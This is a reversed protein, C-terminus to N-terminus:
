GRSLQGSNRVFYDPGSTEPGRLDTRLEAGQAWVSDPAIPSQNQRAPTVDQTGLFVHWGSANAPPAGANVILSGGACDIMVPASREGVAGTLHQWAIQVMYVGSALSGDPSLTVLPEKAQAVAVAAIGIGNQLLRLLGRESVRAFEKWRGLYRDNLHTNYADRYVMSLAHAAVLDKLQQNVVVRGLGSGADRTMLFSEIEYGIERQAVALKASLEISETSAVELVFNDHERLEQITLITGDTFLM